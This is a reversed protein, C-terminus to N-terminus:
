RMYMEFTVVESERAYGNYISKHFGRPVLVRWDVPEIDNDAFLQQVENTYIDPHIMWVDVPYGLRTEYEMRYIYSETGVVPRPATATVYYKQHPIIEISSILDVLTDMTLTTAQNITM